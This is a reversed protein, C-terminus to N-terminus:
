RLAGEEGANPGRLADHLVTCGGPSVAILLERGGVSVLHLSHHATLPLREVPQLRRVGSGLKGRMGFRVLGKSRLVFLSAGLAILAALVAMAQQM